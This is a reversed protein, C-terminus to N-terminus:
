ARADSRQLARAAIDRRFHMGAFRIRSAAEYARAHADALSAGRATVTLVRGGATLVQEGQRSTGAHFVRVGAVEAAAALGEIADGKRPAHPYGETALVVAVASAGSLRLADPALTGAAAGALADAFDGDLVSLLVQAEPDGFRVNFELLTLEGTPSVMLGAFLAGRFPRGEAAMGRLTPALIRESIQAAMAETVLPAPAYAGMGGTNPGADGDGVRKHDQAAPLVFFREGDCIAHISAEAGALRAELVITSGAAGFREGSLMALAELRAEEHSTAVVVGKGACLGDAKVVPPESFEALAADLEAPNKVVRYPATPLGHRTAFQKFFAKSGELEAAARSPGFVLFGAATLEDVLGEYLPVEPGIVILDPREKAAVQLPPGAANGLRKHALDAPPAHTGANGPAVVVEGVSDSGLLRLALAHERGGSGVVLVKRLSAMALGIGSAGLGTL